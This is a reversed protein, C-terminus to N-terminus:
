NRVEYLGVIRRCEYFAEAIKFSLDKNISKEDLNKVTKQRERTLTGFKILHDPIAM